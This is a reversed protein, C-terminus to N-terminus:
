FSMASGLGLAESIFSRIFENAISISVGSIGEAVRAITGIPNLADGYLGSPIDGRGYELMWAADAIRYGRNAGEELFVSM